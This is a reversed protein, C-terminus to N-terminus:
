STPSGPLRPEPGSWSNESDVPPAAPQLNAPLEKVEKSECMQLDPSLLQACSSARRWAAPRFTLQTVLGLVKQGGQVLLLAPVHEWISPLPVLPRTLKTFCKLRKTWDMHMFMGSPLCTMCYCGFDLIMSVPASLSEEQVTNIDYSLYSRAPLM